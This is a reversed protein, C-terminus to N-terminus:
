ETSRIIYSWFHRTSRLLMQFTKRGRRMPQEVFKTSSVCWSRRCTRMLKAFTQWENDEQPISQLVRQVASFDFSNEHLSEDSDISFDSCVRRVGGSELIDDRDFLGAFVEPQQVIDLSTEGNVSDRGLLCRVFQELDLFNLETLLSYGICNSVITFIRMPAWDKESKSLTPGDTVWVRFDLDIVRNFEIDGRSLDCIGESELDTLHTGDGSTTVLASDTDNRVSLSVLSREINNVDLICQVSGKSSSHSINEDNSFSSLCPDTQRLALTHLQGNSLLSVSPPLM